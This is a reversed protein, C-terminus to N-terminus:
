PKSSNRPKVRTAVPPPSARGVAFDAVWSSASPGVKWNYRTPDYLFSFSHMEDEADLPNLVSVDTLDVYTSLWVGPQSKVLDDFVDQPSLKQQADAKTYFRITIDAKRLNGKDYTVAYAIAQGPLPLPLSVQGVDISPVIAPNM